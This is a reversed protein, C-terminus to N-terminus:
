LISDEIRLVAAWVLGATQAQAQAAHARTPEPQASCGRVAGRRRQKAVQVGEIARTHADRGRRRESASRNGRACQAGAGSRREPCAALRAGDDLLERLLELVLAVHIPLARRLILVALLSLRLEDLLQLCLHACAFAGSM